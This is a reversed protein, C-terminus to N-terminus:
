EEFKLESFPYLDEVKMNYCDAKVVFGDDIDGKKLFHAKQYFEDKPCFGLVYAMSLDDMVRMFLYYDCKQKTNFDAVSCNYHGQPESTVRKTKVDIKRGQKVIDYDYTNEEKAGVVFAAIEEGIFGHVSGEGSTISNKLKGMEEAKKTAREIMEKTIIVKLIKGDKKKGKIM